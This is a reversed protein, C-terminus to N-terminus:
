FERDKGVIFGAALLENRESLSFGKVSLDSLLSYDETDYNLIEMASNLNSDEVHYDNCSNGHGSLFYVEKAKSTTTMNEM